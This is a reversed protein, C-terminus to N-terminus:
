DGLTESFKDTFYTNLDSLDSGTVQTSYIVLEKIKGEFTMSGTSTGPHRAGLFKVVATETNTPNTSSSPTIEVGDKFFLFNGSTDKTITILFEENIVWTDTAFNFTSLTTTGSNKIQIQEESTISIFQANGDGGIIANDDGASGERRIVASLTFANSGGIDLHATTDETFVYFDEVSASSFDIGGEALAGREDATDQAAHRANGSSDDWQSVPDGTLGVDNQLWIELNAQSTKPRFAGLLPSDGAIGYFSAGLGLM